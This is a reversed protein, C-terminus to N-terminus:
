HFTKRRVDRKGGSEQPRIQVQGGPQVIKQACLHVSKIFTGHWFRDHLGIKNSLTKLRQTLVGSTPADERPSGYATSFRHLARDRYAM